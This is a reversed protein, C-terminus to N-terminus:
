QNLLYAHPELCCAVTPCSCKMGNLPQSNLLLPAPSLLFSAWELRELREVAESRELRRLSILASALKTSRFALGLYRILVREGIAIQM